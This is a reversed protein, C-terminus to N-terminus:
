PRVVLYLPAARRWQEDARFSIMMGSRFMSERVVRRRSAGALFCSINTDTSAPWAVCRSAAAFHFASRQVGSDARSQM